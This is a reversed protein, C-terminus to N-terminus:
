GELDPALFIVRLGDEAKIRILPTAPESTARTQPRRQNPAYPSQIWRLLLQVKALETRDITEANGNNGIGAADGGSFCPYATERRGSRDHDFPPATNISTLWRM